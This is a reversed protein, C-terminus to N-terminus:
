ALQRRDAKKKARTMPVESPPHRHSGDQATKADHCHGHLLQRNGVRDPGSLARPQIHDFEIVEDMTQFLRGCWTCRGQQRKLLTAKGQPLEPHRGLRSAWYLLDGDYLSRGAAVKTHRRIVTKAHLALSPGGTPGFVWHQVREYGDPDQQVVRHWYHDRVWGHSKTPHRREAWRKLKEYVLHDLRSFVRKSVQASYYNAWGRIKRNLHTVVEATRSQQHRRIVQALEALHRQQATASPKILTKFGLPRGATDMGTHTKGVSFQRVTCGLFDFGAPQGAHPLLTHVIRTKSPKLELGMDALWKAAVDRAREVYALDEHLVVFDDAYRVVLPRWRVSTGPKQRPFAQQISTELGHLAVNALLPSLSGGQPAGEDTPFLDTGELVGAKLWARIVRRLTPFTGLKNLLPSHAIRDFCAAIDADLVYKAKYRVGNFIAELADHCSRGPRFGYSNPEFRAEWEPELALRVLTQTARDRMTPIGLPRQEAKGPKPIWVRRVPQVKPQPRLTRALDLRQAPALDKVGDVGATKKGRNDQTVKRVALCKAAWSRMLLRQLRHVTKVDGRQSARYIQKQLKFVQREFRKWPVAKWEYASPDDREIVHEGRMM